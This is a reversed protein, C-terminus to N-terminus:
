EIKTCVGGAVVPTDDNTDHGNVYGILYAEDFRSAKLNFKYDYFETRCVLFDGSL